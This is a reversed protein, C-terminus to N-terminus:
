GREGSARLGHTPKVAVEPIKNQSRCLEFTRKFDLGGEFRV